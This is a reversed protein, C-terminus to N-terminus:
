HRKLWAARAKFDLRTYQAFGYGYDSIWPKERWGHYLEYTEPYMLFIWPCDELVMDQMRAYLATRAPSAPMAATKEYLADFDPNSYNSGNLGGPGRNKSYFLQWFDQEDPYDAIWGLVFIQAQNRDIMSLFTGYPKFDPLMELGIQKMCTGIFDAEQSEATTTDGFLIHLPPIPGGNIREAEIMKAKAEQLDFRCYEAVRAADYTPFGPPIPGNAAVGRGNQYLDIYRQRDFALSMAQRLPKNKGVVPDAMNFAVYTVWPDRYTTLSIGDRQMEPTLAGTSASIAQGFTDKPITSADLQGQLFLYWPPLAEQFCNLQVRKVHPLRQDDSLVTGSRVDPGGRYVPNATYVIQQDPLHQSMAYPGTGSPHNKYDEGWHEVTARSVVATPMMALTFQFQPFPDILQIRLTYRDVATLGAIPRDWDIKDDSACSQTYAFWDDIGVVRGQFVTAYNSTFGLHFNCVRKWSYIFDAATVEPGGGNPFVIHDPEYFHVGPKIRITVTRGDESVVPDGDALEPILRYRDEGYAYNYLCEYVYGDLDV